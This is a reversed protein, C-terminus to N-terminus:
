HVVQKAMLEMYQYAIQIVHWPVKAKEIMAKITDQIQDQDESTTLILIEDILLHWLFLCKVSDVQQVLM